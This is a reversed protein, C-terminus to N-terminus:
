YSKYRSKKAKAERSVSSWIYAIPNQAQAWYAKIALECADIQWRGAYQFIRTLRSYVEKDTKDVKLADGFLDIMWRRFQTTSMDRFLAAKKLNWEQIAAQQKIEEPAHSVSGYVDTDDVFM